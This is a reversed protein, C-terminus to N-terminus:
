QKKRRLKLKPEGIEMKKKLKNAESGYVKHKMVFDFYDDVSAWIGLDGSKKVM